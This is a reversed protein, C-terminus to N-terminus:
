CVVGAIIGNFANYKFTNDVTNLLGAYKVGNVFQMSPIYEAITINNVKDYIKFRKIVSKVAVGSDIRSLLWISNTSPTNTGKTGFKHILEGDGNLLAVDRDSLGYNGSSANSVFIFHGKFGDLSKPMYSFLRQNGNDCNWSNGYQTLNINFSSNPNGLISTGAQYEDNYFELTYEYNPSDSIAIEIRNNAQAGIRVGEIQPVDVVVPVFGDVGSPSHYTGNETAVLKICNPDVQAIVPDYGDVGEPAHYEGNETIHLEEIVPEHVNVTVPSYGDVGEPATYTGNETITKPEIKPVKGITKIQGELYEQIMGGIEPM